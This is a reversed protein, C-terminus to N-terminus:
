DWARSGLPVSRRADLCYVHACVCTHMIIYMYIYWLTSYVHFTTPQLYIHMCECVPLHTHTLANEFQAVPLGVDAPPGHAAPVSRQAYLCYIHACVYMYAYMYMYM